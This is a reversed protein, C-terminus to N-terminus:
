GDWPEPGKRIGLAPEVARSLLQGKHALGDGVKEADREPRAATVRLERRASQGGHKCWFTAAAITPTLLFFPM